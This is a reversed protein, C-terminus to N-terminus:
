FQFADQPKVSCTPDSKMSSMITPFSVHEHVWQWKGDIKELIGTIRYTMEFAKGDEATGGILRQYMTAYGTTKSTAFVELNKIQFTSKSFYHFTEDFHAKFDGRGTFGFIDFTVVEPFNYFKRGPEISANFEENMCHAWGKYLELIEREEELLEPRHLKSPPYDLNKWTDEITTLTKHDFWGDSAM